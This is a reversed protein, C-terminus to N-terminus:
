TITVPMLIRIFDVGDNVTGYFESNPFFVTTGGSLSPALCKVSALAPDNHLVSCTDRTYAVAYNM